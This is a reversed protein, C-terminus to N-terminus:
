RTFCYPQPQRYILKKVTNADNSEVPMNAFVAINYKKAEAESNGLFKVAGGNVYPGYSTKPNGVIGYM